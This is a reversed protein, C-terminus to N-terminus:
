GTGESHSSMNHEEPTPGYPHGFEVRELPPNQQAEQMQAGLTKSLFAPLEAVWKLARLEGKVAAERAPAGDKEILEKTLLMGRAAIAPLIHDKWGASEVFLVVDRYQDHLSKDM